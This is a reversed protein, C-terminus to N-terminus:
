FKVKGTLRFTRGQGPIAAVDEYVGQLPQFFRVDFLNDVTATLSFRDFEVFAAGRVSTYAPLTVGTTIKGKTESVYTAGITGGLTIGPGIEDSTYTAFASLVTDPIIQRKYGAALEPLCSANLAAFLGGYGQTRSITQGFANVTPHDPTIVVFEGSGSGCAGPAAIRFRQFTAAGTLTFYDNLIFRVETELGKSKERNVNQFSDILSRSQEYYSISGSLRRNLLEFKVGLELLESGFLFKGSAAPGPSIGGNSNYLPESGKAYTIYPTVGAESRWSLSASYSLDGKSAKAARPAGFTTTGADTSQVGYRDYRGGLMLSIEGVEVDLLLGAGTDTWNSVFDSDWPITPDTVPTAFIDTATPGRSLDRRDLVLYGSLFQERLRSNYDRHSATAHMNVSFRDSLEFKKTYSGRIELVDMQHIAAFGYTQNLTGDVKDYFLQLKVNGGADFEKALDAYLTISESNSVDRDSLFVNRPDLKTTGLDTDLAYAAPFGFVGFDVFTRINSSGFFTGVVADIESPNLQGDRNTDVLDTDIGTIYTGNDILDQTLRNWGAINTYGRSSHYMGGAVVSWGGGLQHNFDIQFLEHEPKRGRYYNGSDELEGYLAFGGEEGSFQTPIVLEGTVNRKNYSGVTASVAGHVGDLAQGDTGRAANPHFNLFGGIRGAGYIVPTAGRVIEVREASGIPTPFLGNNLTRKFGRFYTESISGRITISGPVGFFSGGFTGPTTTIYDDIDEISYREATAASIISISRPTELSSLGLGFVTETPRQELLGVRDATVIITDAENEALDSTGSAEAEVSASQTSDQAFAAGQWSVSALLGAAIRLTMSSKSM